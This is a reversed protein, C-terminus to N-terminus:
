PRLRTITLEAPLDGVPILGRLRKGPGVRVTGSQAVDTMSATEDVAFRCTKGDEVVISWCSERLATDLDHSAQDAPVSATFEAEDYLVIVRSGLDDITPDLGQGSTDYAYLLGPFMRTDTERWGFLPWSCVIKKAGSIVVGDSDAVTMFWASARTNWRTEFTYVTGELKINVESWTDNTIPLQLTSM